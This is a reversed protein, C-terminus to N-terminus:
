QIAGNSRFEGGLRVELDALECAIGHLEDKIKATRDFRTRLIATEAAETAMKSYQRGAVGLAHIVLQMEDQTLEIKM